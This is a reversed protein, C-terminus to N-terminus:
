YRTAPWRSFRVKLCRIGGAEVPSDDGNLIRTIQEATLNKTVLNNNLVPAPTPPVDASPATM